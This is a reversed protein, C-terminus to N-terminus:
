RPKRSASVASVSNASNADVAIGLASACQNRLWEQARDLDWGSDVLTFYGAYGFYFWLIDAATDQDLGPALSGLDALRAAIRTMAHRFRDTSRELGAAVSPDHPATVLLIRMIDGYEQRVKRSASAVLDMVQQANDTEQLRSSSQTLLPEDAWLQVLSEMLGAKGGAVSYITAPSVDARRAIQEVTTPFYGQEAFLARAADVMAARNAAAYLARREQAASSMRQDGKASKAV